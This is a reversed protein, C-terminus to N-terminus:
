KFLANTCRIQNCVVKSVLSCVVYLSVTLEFMKQQDYDLQPTPGVSILGTSENIVFNDRDGSEIMYFVNGEGVDGDPALVQVVRVETGVFLCM